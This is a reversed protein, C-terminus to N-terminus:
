KGSVRYLDKYGITITTSPQKGIIQILIHLLTRLLLVALRNLSPM